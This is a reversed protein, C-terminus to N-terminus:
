PRGPQLVTATFRVGACGEAFGHEDYKGKRRPSHYQETLAGLCPSQAITTSPRFIAVRCVSPDL